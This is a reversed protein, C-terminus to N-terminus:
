PSKDQQDMLSLAEKVRRLDENRPHEKHLGRRRELEVKLLPHRQKLLLPGFHLALDQPIDQYAPDLGEKAQFTLIQYAWRGSAMQERVLHYGVELAWGRLKHNDRNAQTVVVPPVKLPETRLIEEILSGGMGCLSVSGVEGVALPELGDGLRVEAERGWLAQKAVRLASPSKETAIIKTCLKNNLLYLPLLAHDTGVDAHVGQPVETSVMLLREDLGSKM